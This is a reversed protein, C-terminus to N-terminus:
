HIEGAPVGAITIGPKTWASLKRVVAGAGVQIGERLLVGPLLQAGCGIDCGFGIQTSELAVPRETIAIGVGKHWGTQIVANSGIGVFDRIEVGGEGHICVHPGIWCHDGITIKGRMYVWPGIYCDRGITIGDIGELIATPHIFTREGVTVNPKENSRDDFM